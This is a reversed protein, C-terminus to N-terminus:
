TTQHRPAGFLYHGLLDNYRVLGSVLLCGAVIMLTYLGLVATQVAPIGHDILPLETSIFFYHLLYIDLTRRGVFQMTRSVAGGRAFLNRLKYFIAFVVFLGSYPAVFFALTRGLVPLTDRMDVGILLLLSSGYLALMALNFRRDDLLRFFRDAYKHALVGLVFYQFYRYLRFLMLVKGARTDEAIGTTMLLALVILVIDVAHSRSSRLLHSVTFYIVFMEFLAITFWYKGFGDILFALPEGDRWLAFLMFFVVAPIIQVAAKKRLRAKYFTRDWYEASKFAIFGSIFFFLPMRFFVFLEDPPFNRTELGAGFHVLHHFVVLLITFGRMADIYELRRSAM